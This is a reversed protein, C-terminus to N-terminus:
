SPETDTHLLALGGGRGTCGPLMRSCDCPSVTVILSWWRSRLGYELLVACRCTSVFGGLFSAGEELPLM